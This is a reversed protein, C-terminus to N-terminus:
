LMSIVFPSFRLSIWNAGIERCHPNYKDKRCNAFSDVTKTQRTPANRALFTGGRLKECKLQPQYNLRASKANLGVLLTM